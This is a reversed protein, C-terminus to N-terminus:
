LLHETDSALSYQSLDTLDGFDTTCVSSCETTTNEFDEESKSARKTTTATLPSVVARRQLIHEPVETVPQECARNYHFMFRRQLIHGSVEFSPQHFSSHRQVIDEPVEISPQDSSRSSSFTSRRQLIHEPVEISPKKSSENVSDNALDVKEIEKSSLDVNQNEESALDVKHIEEISSHHPEQDAAYNEIVFETEKDDSVSTPPAMLLKRRNMYEKMEVASDGASSLSFTRESTAPKSTSYSRTNRNPRSVQSLSMHRPKKRRGFSFMNLWEERAEQNLAVFFIFIFLGQLTSFIVFLWQFATSAEAITFAGLLWQIGFMFMILIVSILTKLASLVQARKDLDAIKRRIHKLLVNIVIVFVVTNFLVLALIPGLFVGFFVRIDSIFCSYLYLTINMIVCNVSTGYLTYTDHNWM